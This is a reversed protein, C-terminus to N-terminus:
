QNVGTRIAQGILGEVKSPSIKDLENLFYEYEEMGSQISSVKKEGRYYGNLHLENYGTNFHVLLKKNISGLHEQYYYVDENKKAKPKGHFDLIKQVIMILGLYAIGSATRVYKDDKYYGDEKEAKQLNEKVNDFYRHAEIKITDLKETSGIYGIAM